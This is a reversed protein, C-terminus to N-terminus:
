KVAGRKRSSTESEPASRRTLNAQEGLVDATDRCDGELKKSPSNHKQSYLHVIEQRVSNLKSAQRAGRFDLLEFATCLSRFTFRSLPRSNGLM